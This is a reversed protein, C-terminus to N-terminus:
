PYFRSVVAPLPHIRGEGDTMDYVWTQQQQWFNLVWFLHGADLYCYSVADSVKFNASNWAEEQAFTSIREPQFALARYAVTQGNPTGGLWCIYPGVSCPAYVSVSGDRIFAGPIRQFPFSV